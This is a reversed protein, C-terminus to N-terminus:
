VYRKEGKTKQRKRYQLPTMGKKKQFLRCFYPYNDIGVRECIRYIPLDSEHLLKEAERLRCDTVYQNVTCHFQEHFQRYLTNKSLHFQNCLASGRLDEELHSHIYDVLAGFRDGEDRQIMHELWIYKTLVQVIQAADALTSSDVFLVNKYAERLTERDHGLDAIKEYIHSFHEESCPENSIQGFIVYGLIMGDKQIPVATDTLGAHCLHTCLVGSKQSDLLLCRDSHACRRKGEETSQIRSCLAKRSPDYWQVLLRFDTDLVDISIGTLRHFHGIIRDLKEVNYQLLM